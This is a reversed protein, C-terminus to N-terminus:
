VEESVAIIRFDGFTQLHSYNVDINTFLVLSFMM